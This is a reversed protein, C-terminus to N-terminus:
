RNKYSSKTKYDNNFVTNGTALHFYVCVHRVKWLHLVFGPMHRSIDFRSGFEFGHPMPCPASPWTLLWKTLSAFVEEFTLFESM